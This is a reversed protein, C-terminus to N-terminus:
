PMSLTEVDQWVPNDELVERDLSEQIFKEQEPSFRKPHDWLAHLVRQKREVSVASCRSLTPAESASLTATGRALGRLWESPNAFDIEGSPLSVKPPWPVSPKSTPM